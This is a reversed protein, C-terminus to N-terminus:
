PSIAAAGEVGSEPQTTAYHLAVGYKGIRRDAEGGVARSM